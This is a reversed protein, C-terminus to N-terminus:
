IQYPLLIRFMFLYHIVAATLVMLHWIEHFGFKGPIPNPKEIYFVVAGLTYIIGGALILIFGETGIMPITRIVQVVGVWGMCIYLTNTTWKPLKPFVSKITIGVAALAWVVGFISWGWADRGPILCVPTYTGAILFFIALYDMLRFFRNWKDSLELGHHFSSALFLLLLSAGYISFAVIHWPKGAQSSLVILIVMGLLSFIAGSMHTITNIVEDTVHISGDKSFAPLEKKKEPDNMMSLNYSGPEKM